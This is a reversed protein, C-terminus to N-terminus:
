NVSEKKSTMLHYGRAIVVAILINLLMNMGSPIGLKPYMITGLISTCLVIAGLLRNKNALDAYVAGLVCPLIFSFGKLVAKPLLPMVQTGVIAFFTIMSVSVFISATIGITSMIEAKPSGQECNTVKQAMTAAPVRLEGVNGCIWVLYSGAANVMPFFSIPQVFYGVGFAAAAALWLKLLDEGSLFLGTVTSVYFAPIFNAILALSVFFLGFKKIKSNFEAIGEQMRKEDDM